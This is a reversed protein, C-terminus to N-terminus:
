QVIEFFLAYTACTAPIALQYKEKMRTGSAIKDAMHLVKM